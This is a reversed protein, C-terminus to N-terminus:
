LRISTSRFGIARVILLIEDVTPLSIVQEEEDVLLYSNNESDIITLFWDKSKSPSPLIESNMLQGNKYLAKAQKLTM